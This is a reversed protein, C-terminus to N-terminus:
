DPVQMTHTDARLRLGAIGRTGATRYRRLGDRRLLDDTLRKSSKAALGNADCHRKWSAWLVRTPEYANPDLEACDDLWEGVTDQAEFYTRTADLVCAPPNLKRGAEEWKRYGEMAWWLIAGPHALLKALLGPDPTAPKNLFPVIFLRRRMGDDVVGLQPAHNGVVLLKHTPTFEFWNERMFRASIKDGGTMQKVKAEDWRRGEETETAVALRVGKLMAIEAPHREGRSQMLADMPLARSYQGWAHALAEVFVSKGNGGPGYVFLICHETTYGTLAYGAWRQLFRALELNGGCCELVFREWEEEGGAAPTAATSMTVHHDGIGQWDPRSLDICCRPTGLVEPNRDWQESRVTLEQDAQCYKMLFNALQGKDSPDYSGAAHFCNAMALNLGDIQWVGSAPNRAYWAKRDTDFRWEDRQFQAAVQKAAEFHTPNNAGARPERRRVAAPM